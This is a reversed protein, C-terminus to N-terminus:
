AATTILWALMTAGNRSPPPQRDIQMRTQEVRHRVHLERRNRQEDARRHADGGKGHQGPDQGFSIQMLDLTPATAMVQAATSSTVAQHM